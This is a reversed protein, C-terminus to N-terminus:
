ADVEKLDALRITAVHRVPELVGAGRRKRYRFAVSAQWDPAALAAPVLAELRQLLADARALLADLAPSTM